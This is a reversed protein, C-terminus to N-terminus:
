GNLRNLLLHINLCIELLYDRSYAQVLWFNIRLLSVKIKLSVPIRSTGTIFKMILELNKKPQKFIYNQFWRFIRKRTETIM